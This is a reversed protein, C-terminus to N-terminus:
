DENHFPEIEKYLLHCRDHMEHLKCYYLEEKEDKGFSEIANM